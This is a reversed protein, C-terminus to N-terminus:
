SIEKINSSRMIDGPERVIEYEKVLNSHLHKRAYEKPTESTTVFLIVQESLNPILELMNSKHEPDLRMVPSDMIIPGELPANCHLAGILALSVLHYQGESTLSVSEGNKLMVELGYNDNINLSTFSPEEIIDLFIDTADKQVRKKLIKKYSDVSNSFVEKLKLCLKRKEKEVNVNDSTNEKGTSNKIIENISENLEDIKESTEDLGENYNDINKRVESLKRILENTTKRDGGEEEIQNKISKLEEKKTQIDLMKGKRRQDVKIINNIIKSSRFNRLNSEIKRLKSIESILDKSNEKISNVSDEMYSVREESLKQDCVVCEGKKLSESILTSIKEENFKEEKERLKKSIDPLKKDVKENLLEEWSQSMMEKLQSGLEDIDNSMNDIQFKLKDEKELLKKMYENKSLEDNLDNRERIKKDLKDKLKDLYDEQAKKAEMLEQLANAYQAQTKDERLAQQVQSDAEDSLKRMDDRANVLLPVGLIREISESILRGAYNQNDLLEKYEQLVEGNFIFFRAVQEPLIKNIASEIEGPGLTVNNKLVFFETEFDNDSTPKKSESKSYVHRVFIYNDNDVSLELKVKFEYIGNSLAEKNLMDLLSAPVDRHKEPIIGYLAYSIASLLSTKGGGNSSYVLTVGKEPFDIEKKGLYPIYNELELKNITLGSSM